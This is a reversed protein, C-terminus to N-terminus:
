RYVAMGSNRGRGQRSSGIRAWGVRSRVGGRRFPAEGPRVFVPDERVGDVGLFFEVRDLDDFTRGLVHRVPQGLPHDLRRPSPEVEDRPVLHTTTNQPSQKQFDPGSSMREGCWAANPGPRLERPPWSPPCLSGPISGRRTAGIKTSRCSVTKKETRVDTSRRTAFPPISSSRSATSPACQSNQRPPDIVFRQRASVM